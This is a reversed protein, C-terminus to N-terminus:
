EMVAVQWARGRKMVCRKRLHELRQAAPTDKQVLGDWQQAGGVVVQQGHVHPRVLRQLADGHFVDLHTCSTPSSQCKPVQVQMTQWACPHPTCATQSPATSEKELSSPWHPSQGAKGTPRAAWVTM